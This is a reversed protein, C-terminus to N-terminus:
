ALAADNVLPVSREDKKKKYYKVFLFAGVAAVVLVSFVIGFIKGGNAASNGQKGYTYIKGSGQKNYVNQQKANIYGNGSTQLTKLVSCMAYINDAENQTLDYTKGNFTDSYANQNNADQNNNANEDASYGCNSLDAVDNQFLQQCYENAQYQNNNNNNNQGGGNAYEEPTIWTTSTSCNIINNFPYTVVSHSNYAYADNPFTNAYSVTDIYASCDEDLFLALEVGNGVDNCMFSSYLQMNNWYSGTAVCQAQNDVWQVIGDLTVQNANNGNDNNMMEWCGMSSCTDCSVVQTDLKRAGNNEANNGGNSYLVLCGPSNIPM